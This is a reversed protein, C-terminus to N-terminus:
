KIASTQDPIYTDVQRFRLQFYPLLGVAGGELVVTFFEHFPGTGTLAGDPNIRKRGSSLRTWGVVSSGGRLLRVDQVCVCWREESQFNRPM